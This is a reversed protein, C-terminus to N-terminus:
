KIALMYWGLRFHPSERTVYQVGLLDVLFLPLSIYLCSRGYQVTFDAEVHYLTFATSIFYIHLAIKVLVIYQVFILIVSRLGSNERALGWECYTREAKQKKNKSMNLYEFIGCDASVILSLSQREKDAGIADRM